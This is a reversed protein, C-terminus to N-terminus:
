IYTFILYPHYLGHAQTAFVLVCKLVPTEAPKGSRSKCIVVEGQHGVQYIVHM